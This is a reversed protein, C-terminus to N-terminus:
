WVLIVLLVRDYCLGLKVIVDDKVCNKCREGGKDLEMIWVFLCELVYDM